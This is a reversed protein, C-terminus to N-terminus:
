PKFNLKPNLTATQLQSLGADLILKLGFLVDHAETAPEATPEMWSTATPVSFTNVPEVPETVTPPEDPEELMEPSVMQASGHEVLPPSVEIQPASAMESSIMDPSVLPEDLGCPLPSVGASLAPSGPQRVRPPQFAPTAPAM